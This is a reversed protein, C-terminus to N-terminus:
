ASAGRRRATALWREIAFLLAILVALWPQLDRPAAPQARAGATPAFARADARAPPQMTPALAERLRQPFEAELLLPMDAPRLPQRFRLLRGRGLSGSELLPAGAADHLVPALAIDAPLPADHALLVSGGRAIWDRLASPMPTSSLWAAIASTAPPTAGAALDFVEVQWARAAARLPRLAAAHGADAHLYLTPPPQRAAPRSAAPVSDVVRWDLERSLQPIRGDAGDFRATALVVLPVGPPLDADLERLLSFIPQPTAPPPADLAPLGQALWHRRANEPLQQAPLASAPVGPMVVVIPRLDPAGHLVPRALWLALLALLLLRLLLLPWEDFRLRRRPRPRARLWRLAAFDLPRVNDRRALHLLLPLLLSALAALAAPLLLSLSM